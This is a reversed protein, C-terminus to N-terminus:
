AVAGPHVEGVVFLRGNTPADEAAHRQAGKLCRGLVEREKAGVRGFNLVEVLVKQDPDRLKEAVRLREIHELLLHEWRQELVPGSSRLNADPHGSAGGTFF